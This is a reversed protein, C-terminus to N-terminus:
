IIIRALKSNEARQQALRKRLRKLQGLSREILLNRNEALDDFLEIQDIISSVRDWITVYDISISSQLHSVNPIM